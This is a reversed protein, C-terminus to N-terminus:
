SQLCKGCHMIAKLRSMALANTAIAEVGLCQTLTMKPELWLGGGANSRNTPPFPPFTGHVTTGQLVIHPVGVLSALPGIIAQQVIAGQSRGM